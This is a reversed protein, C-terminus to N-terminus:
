VADVFFGSVRSSYVAKKDFYVTFLALL